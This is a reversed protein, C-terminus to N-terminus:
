PCGRPADGTRTGARGRGSWWLYAPAAAAEADTAIERWSNAAQTRSVTDGAADREKATADFQALLDARKEPTMMMEM